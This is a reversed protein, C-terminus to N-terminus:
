LRAATRVDWVQLASHVGGGTLVVPRGDIETTVVARVVDTFGALPRGLATGTTLDWLRATRDSSGTVAVPRGDLRTVAVAEVADTHGTLPSGIPDGTTLDWVRVTDDDGGTVAVPRGDLETTGDIEGYDHIPVINPASLRAALASERRFRAAFEPDGGLWSGLVKLVITRDKATDVARWVEGMGGRGLLSLLRYRGFQQEPV